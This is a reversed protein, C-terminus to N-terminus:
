DFYYKQKSLDEAVQEEDCTNFNMVEKGQSIGGFRLCGISLILRLYTQKSREKTTPHKTVEFNCFQGRNLYIPGTYGGQKCSPTSDMPSCQFIPFSGYDNLVGTDYTLMHTDGSIMVLFKNTVETNYGLQIILNSLDRKEHLTFNQAWERKSHWPFSM